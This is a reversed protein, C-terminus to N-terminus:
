NLAGIRRFRFAIEDLSTFRVVKRLLKNCASAQMAEQEARHVDNFIPHIAASSIREVVMLYMFDKRFHADIQYTNIM